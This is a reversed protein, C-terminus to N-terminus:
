ILHWQRYLINNMNQMMGNRSTFTMNLAMDIKYPSNMNNDMCATSPQAVNQYM